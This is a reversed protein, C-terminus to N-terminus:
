CRVFILFLTHMLMEHGQPRSTSHSSCRCLHPHCILFTVGTPAPFRPPVSVSIHVSNIFSSIELSKYKDYASQQIVYSISLGSYNDSVTVLLLSCVQWKWSHNISAAFIFGKDYFHSVNNSSMLSIFLPSLNCWRLHGLFGNTHHIGKTKSAEYVQHLGTVVSVMPLLPPLPMLGKTWWSFQKKATYSVKTENTLLYSNIFILQICSCEFHSLQGKDIETWFPRKKKLSFKLQMYTAYFLHRSPLLTVKHKHITPEDSKGHIYM